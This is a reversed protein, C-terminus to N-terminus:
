LLELLRRTRSRFRDTIRAFALGGLLATVLAFPGMFRFPFQFYPLVGSHEWLPISVRMQLVITGVALALLRQMLTREPATARRLAILALVAAMLPLPGVSAFHDGFMNSWALFKSHFDFKGTLLQESQILPKWRLAPLWAFAALAIGFALGEVRRLRASRDSDVFILASAIALWSLASLNHAASVWATGIALFRLARRPERATLALGYLGIPMGCLAVYEASANRLFADGILYPNLVFLYSAVRGAASPQSSASWSSGAGQLGIVAILTALSLALLLGIVLSGAIWALLSALLLCVHGYFLFIPSGFGAYLHTAWYPPLQLDRLARQYEALRILELPLDHGRPAGIWVIFCWPLAAAIWPLTKM